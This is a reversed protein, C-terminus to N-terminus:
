GWKRSLRCAGRKLADMINQADPQVLEWVGQSLQLIPLLNLEAEAAEQLEVGNLLDRLLLLIGRDVTDESDGQFFFRGQQGYINLWVPKKCGPVRRSETRLLEPYPPLGDGLTELYAYRDYRNEMAAFEEGIEALQREILNM